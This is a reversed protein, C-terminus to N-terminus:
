LVRAQDDRLPHEWGLFWISLPRMNLPARFRGAGDLAAPTRFQLGRGGRGGGHLTATLAESMQQAEAHMGYHELMAVTIWASGVLVENVQLEDGGDGQYQTRDPAAVLLPGVTGQHYQQHNYRVVSRLHSAIRERGIEDSLQPFGALDALYFGILADATLSETYRGEDCLRFYEGTWLRKVYERTGTHVRQLCEASFQKRGFNEAWKALVSLAALTVSGSYSGRGRIGLNDWTSDGFEDHVPIGHEPSTRALLFAGAQHMIEWAAPTLAAAGARGSRGTGAPGGGTQLFLYYSVIFAPNHDKWLNSDDRMQYGNLAHWPDEMVAGVDHPLKGAILLPGREESRYYIREEPMEMPITKLLDDFIVRAFEPWWRAVAYWAYTWLDTTNYYYYGIDYGELLGAHEGDGLRPEPLTDGDLERAWRDVWVAGGANVFSLENIMAASLSPVGAPSTTAAPSGQAPSRAAGPPAVGPGGPSEELVRRHFEAIEERWRPHEREAIAAITRAAHGETGFVATHKRYWRRGEGFEVIPLDMTVTYTVSRSAGPELTFGRHVASALAEDWHATWTEGTGPLTGTRRFADEAWPVTHGQREPPRDIANIGAKLCAEVSTRDTTPGTTSVLVQGEMDHRVPRHPHRQQLAGATHLPAAGTAQASAHPSTAQGTGTSGVAEPSDPALRGASAAAGGSEPAGRAADGPAWRVVSATNGAHTQGPWPRPPQDLATAHAARWGLVNPWFAATDIELDCDGHNLVTITAFWVPWSATSRGQSENFLPTWFEAVVELPLDDGRYHEHIVPFLSYVSRHIAAAPPAAPSAGRQETDSGRAPHEPEAETRSGGAPPAAREPSALRFYGARRGAPSSDSGVEAWRLAFFASDISQRLHYGNQLHWRAFSGDLDRGVVPAGIGGLFLGSLEGDDHSGPKAHWYPQHGRPAGEGRAQAQPAGAAARGQADTRPGTGADEYRHGRRLDAQFGRIRQWPGGEARPGPSM